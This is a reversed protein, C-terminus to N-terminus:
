IVAKGVHSAAYSADQEGSNEGHGSLRRLWCYGGSGKKSWTGIQPFDSANKKLVSKTDAGCNQRRQEVLACVKMVLFKGRSLRRNKERGHLQYV